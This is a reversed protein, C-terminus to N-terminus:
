ILRAGDLCRTYQDLIVVIARYRSRVDLMNVKYYLGVEPVMKWPKIIWSRVGIKITIPITPNLSHNVHQLSIALYSPDIYFLVSM